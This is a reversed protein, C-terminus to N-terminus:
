VHRCWVAEYVLMSSAPACLMESRSDMYITKFTIISQSMWCRAGWPRAQLLRWASPQFCSIFASPGANKVPSFLHARVALFLRYEPSGRRLNLDYVPQAEDKSLEVATILLAFAVGVTALMITALALKRYSGAYSSM